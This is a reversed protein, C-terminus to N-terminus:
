TSFGSFLIAYFVFYCIFLWSVKIYRQSSFSHFVANLFSVSIPKVVLFVKQFNKFGKRVFLPKM